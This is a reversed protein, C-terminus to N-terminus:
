PVVSNGGNEYPGKIMCLEIGRTIHQILVVRRNCETFISCKRLYDGNCCQRFDHGHSTTMSYWSARKFSQM